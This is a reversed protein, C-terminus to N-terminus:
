QKNDKLIMYTKQLLLLYTQELAEELRQLANGFDYLKKDLAM